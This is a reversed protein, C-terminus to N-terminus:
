VLEEERVVKVKTALLTLDDFYLNTLSEWDLSSAYSLGKQIFTTRLSENQLITNINKIYDEPQHPDCLFGNVGNEIFGASGGGNAIVCPLGSAMAEVVVNGYTETVSTFLFIDCSAYVVSLDEHNLKGLFFANPMQERLSADAIGDGAIIFNFPLNEQEAKKYIKILIKLNKEWVLRSTFLINPKKNGTFKRIFETNKKAPNFSSTNLGRPWIKMNSDSINLGVLEKKMIKTPVYVLNCKEYFQKITKIMLNKVPEIIFSINELYYDIYSIFHTHYITIIPINHFQGYNLAYKGLLSPSTIHIVDPNFEVLKKNLKKKEFFPIAIKYNSNFPITLTTIEVIDFPFDTEPSIGCIFLFEFKDAPIRNVIQYITRSAGDFDEKLIDSFFAVKIKKNTYM